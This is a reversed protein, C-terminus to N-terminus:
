TYHESFNKGKAQRENQSGTPNLWRRTWRQRRERARRMGNDNVGIHRSIIPHRDKVQEITGIYADFGDCHCACTFRM